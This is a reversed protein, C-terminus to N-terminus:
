KESEVTYILFYEPSFSQSLLGLGLFNKMLFFYDDSIFIYIIILFTGLAGSIVFPILGLLNHYMWLHFVRFGKLIDKCPISVLM